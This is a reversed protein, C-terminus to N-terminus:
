DLERYELLLGIDNAKLLFLRIRDNRDLNQYELVEQVCREYNLYFVLRALDGRRKPSDKLKAVDRPDIKELVAQDEYTNIPCLQCQVEKTVDVDWVGFGDFVKGSLRSGCTDECLVKLQALAFIDDISPPHIRGPDSSKPHIHYWVIDKGAIIDPLSQIPEASCFVGKPQEDHGIDVWLREVHIWADEREATQALRHLQLEGQLQGGRYTHGIGERVQLELVSKGTDSLAITWEGGRQRNFEDAFVLNGVLLLVVTITTINRSIM